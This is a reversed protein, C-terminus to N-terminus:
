TTQGTGPSKRHIIDLRVIKLSFEFLKSPSDCYSLNLQIKDLTALSLTALHITSLTVCLSKPVYESQIPADVKIVILHVTKSGISDIQRRTM